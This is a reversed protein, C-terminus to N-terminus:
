PERISEDLGRRLPYLFYSLVTRDGAKIEATVTMGPILRFTDPVARLEHSRLVIRSRYFAQGAKEKDDKDTFADESLTRVRGELTGHKQFPYADLKIRAAADTVV